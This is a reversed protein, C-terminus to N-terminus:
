FDLVGQLQERRGLCLDRIREFQDLVDNVLPHPGPPGIRSILTAMRACIAQNQSAITEVALLADRLEFMDDIVAESVGCGKMLSQNLAAVSRALQAVLSEMRASLRTIIAYSLEASTRPHARGAEIRGLVASTELQGVEFALAQVHEHVTVLFRPGIFQNLERYKIQGDPEQESAQLTIFLHDAYAHVKPMHGPERCDRVALPHFKFVDALMHEAAEDVTPIDVWVFGDDRGLLAGVEEVKRAEAAGSAIWRVRIGDDAVADATATLVAPSSGAREADAEARAEVIADGLVQQAWFYRKFAWKITSAVPGHPQCTTLTATERVM